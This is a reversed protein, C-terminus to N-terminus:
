GPHRLPGAALRALDKRVLKGMDNRPLSPAEDYRFPALVDLRDAAHRALGAWDLAGRPVIAAATRINGAPDALAFVAAEAVNPHEELIREVHAPSVKRGGVNIIDDIRGEVYVIGEASVHGRDNPHFWGGRFREAHVGGHYGMPMGAVRVRIEGSVGPPVPEGKGDVVELTVDPRVRGAAGPFAAFSEPTSLALNGTETTSYSGYVNRTIRRTLAAVVSPTATGGVLRL